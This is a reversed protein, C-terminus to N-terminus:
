DKERVEGIVWANVQETLVQAAMEEPVCLVLGVGMNFTRRMEQTEVKGVDQFWEFLAPLGWSAYDIACTLNEPLMRDPNEILGGGTIHALAKVQGQRLCRLVSKVYIQTPTLLAEGLSQSNSFPAADELGLGSREVIKHILSYGNSHAGSSPLAILIDGARLDDSNPILQNREVAGVTFGALDFDGEAYLGPLEATEGGILACGALECGKAIGEVIRAGHAPDLRGTAFYDLFFLPEAGHALIDNVCMAVLDQGITDYIGTEIALKLKTGVGDTGSVLIPDTFGAAKIDFLGGFGGLGAMVGPRFTARTAPKIADVLANGADIDVGAGTYTLSSDNM